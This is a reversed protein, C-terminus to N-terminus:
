ARVNDDKEQDICRFKFVDILRMFRNFNICSNVYGRYDCLWRTIVKRKSSNFGGKELKVLLYRSEVIPESFFLVTATAFFLHLATM